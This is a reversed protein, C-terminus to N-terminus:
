DQALCYKRGPDGVRQLMGLDLMMTSAQATNASEVPVATREAKQKALVPM